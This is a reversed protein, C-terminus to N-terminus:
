RRGGIVVRSLWRAAAVDDEDWMAPIPNILVVHGRNRQEHYQKADAAQSAAAATSTLLCGRSCQVSVAATM